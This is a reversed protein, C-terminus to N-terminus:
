WCTLEEFKANQPWKPHKSFKELEEPVPFSYLKALREAEDLKKTASNWCIELPYIDSKTIQWKKGTECATSLLVRLHYDVAVKAEYSDTPSVGFVAVFQAAQEANQQHHRAWALLPASILVLVLCLRIVFRPDLQPKNKM